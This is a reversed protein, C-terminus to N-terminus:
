YSTADNIFHRQQNQSPSASNVEYQTVNTFPQQYTQQYNKNTFYGGTAGTANTTSLLTPPYNEYNESALPQSLHLFKTDALSSTNQTSNPLNQVHLKISSSTPNNQIM